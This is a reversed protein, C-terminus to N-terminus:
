DNEKSSDHNDETPAATPDFVAGCWELLLEDFWDPGDSPRGTVRNNFDDRVQVKGAKM